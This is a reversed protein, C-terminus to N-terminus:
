GMCHIESIRFGTGIGQHDELRVVVVEGAAASASIENTWGVPTENSLLDAKVYFGGSCGSRSSILVDACRYYGCSAGAKEEDTPWRMHTEGSAVVKWGDSVMGEDFLEAFTKEPASPPPPPQTTSRSQTSREQTQPSDVSQYAFLSIGGVILLGILVGPLTGSKKKPKKTLTPEAETFAPIRPTSEDPAIVGWKSGDWWQLKKDSNEYWGAPHNPKEDSM